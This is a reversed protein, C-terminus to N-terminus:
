SKKKDIKLNLTMEKRSDLSSMTKSASKAGDLEAHVEYDVNPDLGSFRYNGDKDAFRSSVANTRMNRLFVVSGPLPTESKDTVLGSVTRLQTEKKNGQSAALGAALLVILCVMGIKQLGKM